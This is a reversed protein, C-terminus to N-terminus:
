SAVKDKFQLKLSNNQCMLCVPRGDLDLLVKKKGMGIGGTSLMKCATDGYVWLHAVTNKKQPNYLYMVKGRITFRPCIRALFQRWSATRMMTADKGVSPAVLDTKPPWGVAQQTVKLAKRRMAGDRASGSGAASGSPVSGGSADPTVRSASADETRERDSGSRQLVPASRGVRETGGSVGQWDVM